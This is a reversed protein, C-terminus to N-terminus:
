RVRVTASRRTGAVVRYTGPTAALVYAGAATTRGSAARLWRRGSQRELRVAIGASADGNCDTVSGSVRRRAPRATVRSPPLSGEVSVGRITELVKERNWVTPREGNAMRYEGFGMSGGASDGSPSLASIGLYATRGCLPIVLGAEYRAEGAMPTGKTLVWTGQLSGVDQGRVRREIEETGELIPAWDHVLNAIITARTAPERYVAASWGLGSDGALSALGTAQYRPGRWSGDNGGRGLVDRVYEPPSDIVVTLDAPYTRAEGAISVRYRDQVQALAPVAALVGAGAVIALGRIARM